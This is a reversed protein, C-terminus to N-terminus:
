MNVPWLRPTSSYPYIAPTTLKIPTTVVTVPTGTQKVKHCHCCKRPTALPNVAIIDVNYTPNPVFPVRLCFCCKKKCCKKPSM